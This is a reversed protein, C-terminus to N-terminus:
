IAAAVEDATRGETEVAEAFARELHAACCEAARRRQWETVGGRAALRAEVTALPARLCFHRVDADYRRGGARIEDLYDVRSFAMPVVVIPRLARVARIGVVSARRWLALDQFDDTGRGALPVWRPLRKLVIGVLEPDYIASGRVRARLARAVTTKGIGFAGNLLVIM